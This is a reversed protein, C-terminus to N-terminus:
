FVTASRFARTPVHPKRGLAVESSSSPCVTKLMRFEATYPVSPMHTNTDKFSTERSDTADSEVDDVGADGSDIDGTVPFM